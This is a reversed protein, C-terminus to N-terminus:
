KKSPWCSYICLTGDNLVIASVILYKSIVKPHRTAPIVKLVIGM